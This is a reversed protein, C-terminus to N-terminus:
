DKPCPTEFFALEAVPMDVRPDESITVRSLAPHALLAILPIYRPAIKGEYVLKSVQL